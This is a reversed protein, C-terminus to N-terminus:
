RSQRLLKPTYNSTQMADVWSQTYENIENKVIERVVIAYNINICDIKEIEEIKYAKGGCNPCFEAEPVGEGNRITAREKVGCCGCRTIYWHNEILEGCDPCYGIDTDLPVKNHQCKKNFNFLESWQM